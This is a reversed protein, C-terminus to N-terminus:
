QDLEARGQLVMTTSVPASINGARDGIQVTVPVTRGQLTAVRGGCAVQGSRANVDAGAPSVLPADIIVGTIQSTIRCGPGGIVDGEGDQFTILLVVVAPRGVVLPATNSGSVGAELVQLETIVPAGSPGSSDSGGCAALLLVPFVVPLFWQRM